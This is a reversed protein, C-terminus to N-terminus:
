TRPEPTVEGQWSRTLRRLLDAETYIRGTPKDYDKITRVRGSSNKPLLYLFDPVGYPLDKKPKSYKEGDPLRVIADLTRQGGSAQSLRDMRDYILEFGKVKDMYKRGQSTRLLSVLGNADPLTDALIKKHDAPQWGADALKKLIEAVDSQAILDGPRHQPQSSLHAVMVQEVQQLSVGPAAAARATGQGSAKGAITLAVTLAAALGYHKWQHSATLM